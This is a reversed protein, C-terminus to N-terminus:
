QEAAVKANKLAEASVREDEAADKYGDAMEQSSRQAYDAAESMFSEIRDTLKRYEDSTKDVGNENM